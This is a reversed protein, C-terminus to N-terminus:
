GPRVARNGPRRCERGVGVRDLNVVEQLSQGLVSSDGIAYQRGDLRWSTNDVHSVAGTVPRQDLPTGSAFGAANASCEFAVDVVLRHQESGSKTLLLTTSEITAGAPVSLSPFRFASINTQGSDASGVVISAQSQTTFISGTLTAVDQVSLTVIKSFGGFPPLQCSALVMVLALVIVAYLRVSRKLESTHSPM